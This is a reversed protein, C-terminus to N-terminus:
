GRAQSRKEQEELDIKAQTAALEEDMKKKAFAIGMRMVVVIAGAILVLYLLSARNVPDAEMVAAKSGEKREEDDQQDLAQAGTTAKEEGTSAAVATGSSLLVCFGILVAMLYNM